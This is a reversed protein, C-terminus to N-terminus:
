GNQEEGLLKTCYEQAQTCEQATCVPSSKGLPSISAGTCAIRGDKFVTITVEGGTVSCIITTATLQWSVM